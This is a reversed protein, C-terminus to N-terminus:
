TAWDSRGLQRLLLSLHWLGLGASSALGAALAVVGLKRVVPNGFALRPGRLMLPGAARFPRQLPETARVATRYARRQLLAARRPPARLRAACCALPHIRSLGPARASAAFSLLPAARALWAIGGARSRRSRGGIRM